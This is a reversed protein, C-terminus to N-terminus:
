ETRRLVAALREIEEEKARILPVYKEMEAPFWRVSPNRYDRSSPQSTRDGGLFAWNQPRWYNFWLRNKEIVAQRLAEFAPDTWVGIPNIDGARAVLDGFGLQRAMAAAILGHGRPTLQLGDGTLRPREHTAGGFEQFLDVVSYGHKHALTRIAVAHAALAVNHASLDPLLGGGVEFPPPTVLIIRATQKTCQNLLKEYAAVFRPVSDTVSLTEARGFELFLVTVGARRLHEGLPPFGVDRPQAFVTDGEWGFNRFHTGPFRSALLAEGHGTFSASIVDSGGVFGVVDDSRLSFAAPPEAGPLLLPAVVLAMLCLGPGFRCQFCM